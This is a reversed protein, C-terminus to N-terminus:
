VFEIAKLNIYFILEFSFNFDKGTSKSIRKEWGELLDSM